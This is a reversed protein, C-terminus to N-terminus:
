LLAEREDILYLRIVAGPTPRRDPCGPTDPYCKWVTGNVIQSDDIIVGAGGKTQWADGIIRAYKDWDGSGRGTPWAPATDLVRSANRGTGYHSQPRPLTFTVSFAVPCTLGRIPLARGAATVQRRWAENDVQEVLAHKIPGRRGVCKMSGKPRPIGPVWVGWTTQELTTM